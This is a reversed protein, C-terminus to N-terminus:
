SKKGGLQEIKGLVQRWSSEVQQVLPSQRIKVGLQRIYHDFEQTVMEDPVSQILAHLKDKNIAQIQTILQSRTTTNSLGYQTKVSEPLGEVISWVQVYVDRFEPDSMAELRTVVTNKEKELDYGAWFTTALGKFTSGIVRERLSPEAAWLNATLCLLVLLFSIVRRMQSRRECPGYSRLKVANRSM